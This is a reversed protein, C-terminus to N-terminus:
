IARVANKFKKIVEGVPVMAEAPGLTIRLYNEYGQIPLGRGVLVGREEFERLAEEKNQVFDIHIFNAYTDRFAINMETLLQILYERGEETRNLYDDEVTQLNDLIEMAALVAISNIEYMPKFKYLLQALEEGAVVYGIRLGALGAAKSFTRTIMLNNYKQCFPLATQKCFGYYAEDVLVPVGDPQAKELIKELDPHAIYTGTPSNPNALVVLSASPGMNNLLGELDLVLDQSYSIAIRTARYLECYVDVMAFTPTLTIVRDGPNVFLEFAHRIAADSGATLVINS